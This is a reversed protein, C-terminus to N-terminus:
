LLERILELSDLFTKIKIDNRVGSPHLLRRSNVGPNSREYVRECHCKIMNQNLKKTPNVVSQM